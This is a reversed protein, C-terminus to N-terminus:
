RGDARGLASSARNSERWACCRANRADSQRRRAVHELVHSCWILDFSASDFPMDQIDVKHRVRAGSIDATHYDSALTAIWKALPKEPAFHLVRGLPKSLEDKLLVYALRHREYSWCRPCKADFRFFPGPKVPLFQFGTWGCLPCERGKAFRFFRTIIVKYARGAAPTMHTMSARDAPRRVDSSRVAASRPGTVFPHTCGRTFWHPLRSLAHLVLFRMPDQAIHFGKWVQPDVRESRLALKAYEFVETNFLRMLLQRRKSSTEEAILTDITDCLCHRLNTTSNRTVMNVSDRHYTATVSPCALLDARRAARLWLDKDGGRSCRGAPFLGAELLVRRRFTAASTWVPCARLRIWVNLLEDFDM